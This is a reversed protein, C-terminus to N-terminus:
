AVAAAGTFFCMSERGMGKRRGANLMCRTVPLSRVANPISFSFAFLCVGSCIM